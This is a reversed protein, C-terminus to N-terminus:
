DATDPSVSLSDSTEYEFRACLPTSVWKSTAHDDFDGSLDFALQRSRRLHSLTPKNHGFWAFRVAVAEPCLSRVVRDPSNSVLSM